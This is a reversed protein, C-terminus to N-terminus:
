RTTFEPMLDRAFQEMQRLAYTVDKEWSFQLVIQEVGAQAYEHIRARIADPSGTLRFRPSGRYTFTPSLAPDFDIALRASFTLARVPRMSEIRRKGEGMQEASAGTTHWGDGLAATRRWSPEGNGGIWIPLDGRRSPLPASYGDQIHTYNGEFRVENQSWITRMLKIAEDLRKGRNKFNYGLNNYEKENWGVGVAVIMRGNTAADMTAIQKAMLVPNRMPLVLVSLGLQVTPAAEAVLALTVVAEYMTGYPDINEKPVLLHDTTWVSAYGLQQAAVAARRIADFTATRGYNPLIIGFKM